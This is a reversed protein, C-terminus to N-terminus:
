RNFIWLDDLLTIFAKRDFAGQTSPLNEMNENFFYDQPKVSVAKLSSKTSPMIIEAYKLRVLRLTDRLIWWFSDWLHLSFPVRRCQQYSHLNTSASHLVTHCNRLFRFISSGYLGAIGSRPMYGSSVMIRFSVHVGINM